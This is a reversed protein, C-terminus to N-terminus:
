EGVDALCFRVSGDGCWAVEGAVVANQVLDVGVRDVFGAGQEFCEVILSHGEDVAVGHDERVRGRASM